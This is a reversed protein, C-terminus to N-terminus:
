VVPPPWPAHRHSRLNLMEGHPPEQPATADSVSRAREQISRLARCARQRARQTRGAHATGQCQRSGAGAWRGARGAARSAPGCVDVVRAPELKEVWPAGAPPKDVEVEGAGAIYRVRQGVTRWKRHRPVKQGQAGVPICACASGAPTRTHRTFLRQLRWRCQRASTSDAFLRCAAQGRRTHGEWQFHM